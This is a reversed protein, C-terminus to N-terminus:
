PSPQRLLAKTEYEADAFFLRVTKLSLEQQLQLRQKHQACGASINRSPENVGLYQLLVMNFLTVRSYQL